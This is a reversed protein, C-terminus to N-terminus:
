FKVGLNSTSKLLFILYDFPESAPVWRYASIHIMHGPGETVSSYQVYTNEAWNNGM